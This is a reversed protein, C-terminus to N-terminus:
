DDSEPRNGNLSEGLFVEVCRWFDPHCYSIRSVIVGLNSLVSEMLKAGSENVSHIFVPTHVNKSRFFCACVDEGTLDTDALDRDLFIFDYQMTRILKIAGLPNDVFVIDHKSLRKKFEDRRALEDEVVLLTFM